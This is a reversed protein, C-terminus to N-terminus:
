IGKGTHREAKFALITGVRYMPSGLRNVGRKQRILPQEEEDITWHKALEHNEWKRKM